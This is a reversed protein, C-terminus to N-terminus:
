RPSGEFASTSSTAREARALTRVAASSGHQQASLMGLLAVVPHAIEDDFVPTPLGVSAALDDAHVVIEMLRVVLFDETTVTCDQWPVYTVPGAAATVAPLDVRARELIAVSHAAGGAAMANFDDRISTNEAADVAAAFWDTRRYLEALSVTVAHPPPPQIRLFEVACEPQSVLHRTLGGVTMGPLVSERQWGAAVEPAGVLEAISDAARSVAARDISQVFTLAM